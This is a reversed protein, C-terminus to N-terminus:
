LVLVLPRRRAAFLLARRVLDLVSTALVLPAQVSAPVAMADLIAGYQAPTAFLGAIGSVLWVVVLLARVLPRLLYLRAHWRDQVFGSRALVERLPARSAPRVNSNPM